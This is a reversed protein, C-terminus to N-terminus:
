PVNSLALECSRQTVRNPNDQEDSTRRDPCLRLRETTPGGPSIAGQIDIRWADCIEIRFHHLNIGSAIVNEVECGYRNRAAARQLDRFRSHM